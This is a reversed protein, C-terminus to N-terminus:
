KETEFLTSGAEYELEDCAWKARALLESEAETLTRQELLAISDEVVRLRYSDFGEKIRQFLMDTPIVGAFAEHPEEIQEPMQSIELEAEGIAEIIKCVFGDLHTKVFQMDGRRVAAELIDAADKLLHKDFQSAIERIGNLKIEFLELNNDVYLLLEESWVYLEQVFTWLTKKRSRRERRLLEMGHRRAEETYPRRRYEPPMYAEVMHGFAEVDVPKDLVDIFGYKRYNGRIEESLDSSVMIIPVDCIKCIEATAEIGTMEPMVQDMFILQYTNKKVAEVAEKGNSVIDWQYKWPVSMGKFIEQNIKMDDAALVKADPYVWSPWIHYQPGAMGSLSDQM